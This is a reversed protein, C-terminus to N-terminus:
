RVSKVFTVIDDVTFNSPVLYIERDIRVQLNRSVNTIECDIGLLKSLRESTNMQSGTGDESRESIEDVPKVSDESTIM